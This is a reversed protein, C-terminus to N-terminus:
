VDSAIFTAINKDFPSLPSVFCSLGVKDVKSEVWCSVVSGDVQPGYEEMREGECRIFVELM